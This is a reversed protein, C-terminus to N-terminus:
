PTLIKSHKRIQTSGTVATKGPKLIFFLDWGYDLLEKAEGQSLSDKGIACLLREPDKSSKMLHFTEQMSEVEDKSISVM